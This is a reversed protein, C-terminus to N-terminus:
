QFLRQYPMDLVESFALMESLTVGWIGSEIKSLRVVDTTIGFATLRAALEAQSLGKELRAKRINVGARINLNRESQTRTM